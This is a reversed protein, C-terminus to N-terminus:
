FGYRTSRYAYLGYAFIEVTYIPYKKEIENKFEDFLARNRVAEALAMGQNTLAIVAKSDFPQSLTVIHAQHMKQLHYLCESNHYKQIASVLLLDECTSSTETQSLTLLLDRVCDINLKM